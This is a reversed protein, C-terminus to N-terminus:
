KTPESSESSRSDTESSIYIARHDKRVVSAAGILDTSRSSEEKRILSCFLFM